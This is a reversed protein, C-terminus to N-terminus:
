IIQRHLRLGLQAIIKSDFARKKGPNAGTKREHAKTEHHGAKAQEQLLDLKDVVGSRRWGPQRQPKARREDGGADQDV